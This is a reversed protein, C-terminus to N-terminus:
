CPANGLNIGYPRDLAMRRMTEQTLDPVNSLYAGAISGATDRLGEAGPRIISNVSGTSARIDEHIIRSLELRRMETVNVGGLDLSDTRTGKDVENACIGGSGWRGRGSCRGSVGDDM